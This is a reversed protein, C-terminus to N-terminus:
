WGDHAKSGRHAQGSAGGSFRSSTGTRAPSRMAQAAGCGTGRVPYSRSGAAPVAPLGATSGASRMMPTGAAERPRGTARGISDSLRWPPSHAEERVLSPSSRRIQDRSMRKRCRRCSRTGSPRSISSAAPAMRIAGASSRVSFRAVSIAPGLPPGFEAQDLDVRAQGLASFYRWARVAATSSDPM